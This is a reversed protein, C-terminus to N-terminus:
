VLATGLNKSRTIANERETDKCKAMLTELKRASEQYSMDSPRPGESFLSDIFVGM